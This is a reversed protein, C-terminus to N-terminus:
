VGLFYCDELFDELKQTKLAMFMSLDFYYLYLNLSNLAHKWTKKQVMGKPEDIYPDGYISLM